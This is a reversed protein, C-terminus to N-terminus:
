DTGDFKSLLFRILGNLQRFQASQQAAAASERQVRLKMATTLVTTSLNAGPNAALWATNSTIAADNATIDARNAALATGAQARLTNINAYSSGAVPAAFTTGNFIQGEVASAAIPGDLMTDYVLGVPPAQANDLVKVVLPWQLYAIM